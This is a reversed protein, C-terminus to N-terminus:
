RDAFRVIANMLPLERRRLQPLTSRWKSIADADMGVSNGVEKLAPTIEDGAAELGFSDFAYPLGEADLPSRRDVIHFHLHPETSNGSNGLRALVTGRRVRDGPKVTISGPQVHAYLAYAGKAIEVLVYNGTLTEPSMPVARAVPDPVNEPIGDHTLSVTGDAVALLEAGYARYSANNLPDGHLTRGDPYLRVWDIAFRQAIRGEGSLALLTRRHDSTNDPGNGALWGDGRLPPGIDLTKHESVAVEVGSVTSAEGDVEVRFRHTLTRPTTASRLSLWMFILASQGAAFSPEPLDGPRAGVHRLAASLSAGELHLLPPERPTSGVVDISELRISRASLNTVHLEYVLHTQGAAQFPVPSTPVRVDIVPFSRPAQAHVAAAVALLPAAIWTLTSRIL